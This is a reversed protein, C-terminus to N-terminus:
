KVGKMENVIDILENLLDYEKATVLYREAASMNKFEEFSPLLIREIKKPEEIVDVKEVLDAKILDYLLDQTISIPIRREDFGDYENDKEVITIWGKLLHISYGYTGCSNIFYKFGYKELKKLDVNDKIKLM